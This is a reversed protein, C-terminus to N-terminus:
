AVDVAAVLDADGLLRRDAAHLARDFTPAPELCAVTTEIVVMSGAAVAKRLEQASGFCVDGGGGPELRVGVCAHGHLLVVFPLLGVHECLAAFALALDLCTALREGFVQEPLRVKQGTREFSPPESVYRIGVACVADYLAEVMARVREPDSRQMGDLSGDGTLACLREGAARLVPALVPHNPQVFAALLAPLVDLGPWENGALVDIPASWRALPEDEGEATATVVLDARVAELLGAFADGLLRLDPAGLERREGVLLGDVGLEAATAFDGLTVRVLLGDLDREGGNHLEIGFLWPVANQQMAYCLRDAHRVDITLGNSRLTM